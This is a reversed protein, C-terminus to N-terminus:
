SAGIIGEKRLEAMLKENILLRGDEFGHAPIWSNILVSYGDSEIKTVGIRIAPEKLVNALSSFCDTIVQKIKEYEFSYKVKLEIDVRRKGQRSLNLIIENSLKSNPVIVTKNDFTLIVSYFLQISSVTGEQGQTIINDGVKYPRLLLILVGSAFNQLTGSLALGAAVTFGAVVSAFVTMKVGIITMLLVFVLVQLVVIIFNALFSKVSPEIHSKNLFKNLWKRVFRLVLQAVFLVVIAIVVRPGFKIIWSHARTYFEELYNM